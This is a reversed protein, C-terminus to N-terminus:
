GNEGSCSYLTRLGKEQAFTDKHRGTNQGENFVGEIRERFHSLLQDFGASNQQHQNERKPTFVRNGTARSVEAQWDDGIFGKDSM